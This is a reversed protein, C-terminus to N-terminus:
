PRARTWVFAKSVLPWPEQDIRRGVLRPQHRGHGYIGHIEFIDLQHPALTEHTYTYVYGDGPGAADTGSSWRAAAQQKIPEPLMHWRAELSESM